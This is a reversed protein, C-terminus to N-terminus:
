RLTPEAEVLHTSGALLSCVLGIALLGAGVQLATTSFGFVLSALTLLFGLVIMHTVM